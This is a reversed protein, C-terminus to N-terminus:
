PVKLRSLFHARLHGLIAADLRAECHESGSSENCLDLADAPDSPNARNWHPPRAFGLDPGSRCQGEQARQLLELAYEWDDLCIGALVALDELSETATEPSGRRWLPRYRTLAIKRLAAYKSRPFLEQIEVHRDLALFIRAWDALHSASLAAGGQGEHILYGAGPQNVRFIPFRAFVRLQFDVDSPLGAHLYPAGVTELVSRRWLISSWAYHGFRLWDEMHEAPELRGFRRQDPVQPYTELLKGGCDRAETVYIAAGLARDAELMALAKPIFDPYVWDDDALPVFYDTDVCGLAQQFNAIPGINVPNKQYHIPVDSKKLRDIVAKAEDTSGNDFVRIVLGSCGSEIVSKLARELMAPRNFTPILVTM